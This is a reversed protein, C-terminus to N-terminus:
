ATPPRHRATRTRGAALRRHRRGGASRRHHRGPQPFARPHSYARKAAVRAHRPLRRRHRAPRANPDSTYTPLSVRQIKPHLIGPLKPPGSPRPGHVRCGAAGGPCPAQGAFDAIQYGALGKASTLIDTAPEVDSQKIGYHRLVAPTAVYLLNSNAPGALMLGPRGNITVHTAKVLAVAQRGPGGQARSLSPAAPDVAGDLALVSRAHLAATFSDVRDQLAHVQAPTDVPITGGSGLTPDANASIYVILQDAPLNGGSPSVAAAAQAKAAGIAVAAAVGLALGIAALAAGARSQYRALDRLALRVAIPSRRGVVALWRIALPGLLLM